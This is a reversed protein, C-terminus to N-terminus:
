STGPRSDRSNGYETLWQFLEERDVLKLDRLVRHEWVKWVQQSFRSNTVLVHYNAIERHGVGILRDVMPVGVPRDLRHLKCEVLIKIPFGLRTNQIALIDYGGDRTQKTLQVEWGRDKIVEAVIIEFTRPHVRDVDHPRSRLWQM